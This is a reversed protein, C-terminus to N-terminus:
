FKINVVQGKRQQIPYPRYLCYFFSLFAFLLVNWILVDYAYRLERLNRITSVFITQSSTYRAYDAFAVTCFQAVALSSILILGVNFVLSSMMTDGPSMPHVAIFLIRMGLKTNGKIVCLLLWFSFISYFSIGVFPVDKISILFDNLFPTIPINGTIPPIMYLVIHLLWFLSLFIGIFGTFAKFFEWLINGGAARYSLENQRYANELILVDRKFENELKKLNRGARNFMSDSKNTSKVQSKINESAQLLLQAQEGIIQKRENYVSAKIPKPRYKFDMLLDFPLAILGVGAFVSFLVWGLLTAVAITSVLPSVHVVETEKRSSCMTSNMCYVNEVAEGPVFTGFVKTHDVNVYGLYMWILFDALGFVVLTPIIWKFAYLVQGATTTRDAADDVDDVGEYYFMVFPVIVASAIITTIFFALNIELMPIGGPATFEGRQNSVDLPLLFINYCAVSLGLVVVSKPFWAVWKDDPHQFHVLFYVSSIIILIAFVVTTLILAIDAM